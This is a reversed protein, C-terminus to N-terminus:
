KGRKVRKRVRRPVQLVYPGILDPRDKADHAVWIGHADRIEGLWVRRPAKPAKVRLM